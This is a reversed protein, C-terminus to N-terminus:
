QISFARHFMSISLYQKTLVVCILWRECTVGIRKSYLCYAQIHRVSTSVHQPIHV